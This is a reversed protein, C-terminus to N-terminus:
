EMRSLLIELGKCVTHVPDDTVYVPCGLNQRFVEALGSTRMMGGCCVIGRMRVDERDSVSLGSLFNRIWSTWPSCLPGIAQAMDNASVLRKQPRGTLTNIGVLEMCLPDPHQRVSALQRCLSELSDEPLMLGMNDKLWKDAARKMELGAGPHTSCAKLTGKSFIAIESSSYGMSLVCSAVPLFLDLGAGIAAIWIEQEFYVRWAGLGLLHEKLLARENEKLATPYSVILVTKSFMRFIRYQGCLMELMADLADFDISDRRIPAKVVIDEDGSEALEQAESGIAVCNGHRDFAALSPQDFLIGEETVLRLSSAGLDIGAKIM